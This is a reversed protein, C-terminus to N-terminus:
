WEKSKASGSESSSYNWFGDKNRYTSQYQRGVMVAITTYDVPTSNNDDTWPIPTAGSIDQVVDETLTM